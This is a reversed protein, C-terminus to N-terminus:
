GTAMVVSVSASLNRFSASSHRASDSRDTLTSSLSAHSRKAASHILSAWSVWFLRVANYPRRLQRGRENSDRAM